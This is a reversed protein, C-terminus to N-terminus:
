IYGFAKLGLNEMRYAIRFHCVLYETIYELKRRM